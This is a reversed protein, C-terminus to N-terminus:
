VLDENLFYSTMILFNIACTTYFALNEWLVKNKALISLIFYKKFIKGLKEEHKVVKIIPDTWEMIGSLKGKPNNIDISDHFEEKNEKPL